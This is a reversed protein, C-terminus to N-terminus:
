DNINKDLKLLISQLYRRAKLLQTKSTNISVGLKEAIERHSYGDIAYLNFVMRYGEPLQQITELIKETTLNDTLNIETQDFNETDEYSSLVDHKKNRRYHDIATNVVIRRMWAEFTGSNHFQNIKTFINFFGIHVIDEAEQYSTSYRQCIGLMRGYYKRYLQKQAKRKNKLCGEIIDEESKFM